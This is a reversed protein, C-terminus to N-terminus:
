CWKVNKSDALVDLTCRRNDCLLVCYTGLCPLVSRQLADTVADLDKHSAATIAACDEEIRARLRKHATNAARSLIDIAARSQASFLTTELQKYKEKMFEEATTVTEAKKDDVQQVQM